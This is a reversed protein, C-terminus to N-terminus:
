HPVISFGIGTAVPIDGAGSHAPMAHIHSPSRDLGPGIRRSQATCELGWGGMRTATMSSAGSTRDAM